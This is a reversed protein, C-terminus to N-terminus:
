TGAQNKVLTEIDKRGEIMGKEFAPMYHKAMIKEFPPVSFPTNYESFFPNTKDAESQNKCSSFILGSLGMILFM